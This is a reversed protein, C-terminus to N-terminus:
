KYEEKLEKVFDVDSFKICREGMDILGEDGKGLILVADGVNAISLAYRIAEPRSVIIKARSRDKFAGYIQACVSLPPEYGPNDSTIVSFDALSEAVRALEQRRAFSRGGVSGFVCIIRGSFLRRALLIIERMSDGNHAYDVIVSRGNIESIELRGPVRASAVASGCEAISAGTIERSIGIALATNKANYVGPM